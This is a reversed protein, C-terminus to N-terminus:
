FKIEFVHMGANHFYSIDWNYLNCINKVITLGLGAGDSKTSKQFRNFIREAELPKLATTNKFVCGDERLCIILQGHDVNHRIANSFMNNLLIDFLYKSATVVKPELDVACIINKSQLLEQFQRVKQEILSDVNLIEADELLNNEIKVLLLLSHNLRTLKSAAAYIDNIQDYQVSKLSEDQILTDLKSTIVSLPTMMEHSADQTFQKLNQFDNGVRASMVNM